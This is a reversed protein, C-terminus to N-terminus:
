NIYLQESEVMCDLALNKGSVRFINLILLICNFIDAIYVKCNKYISGKDTFHEGGEVAEWGDM